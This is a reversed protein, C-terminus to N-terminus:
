ISGYADHHVWGITTYWAIRDVVEGWAFLKAATSAGTPDGQPLGSCRPTARRDQQLPVFILYNPLQPHDFKM